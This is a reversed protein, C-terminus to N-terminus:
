WQRQRGAYRAARPAVGGCAFLDLRALALLLPRPFSAALALPGSTVRLIRSRGVVSCAATSRWNQPACRQVYLWHTVLCLFCFFVSDLLARRANCMLLSTAGGHVASMGYSMRSSPMRSKLFARALQSCVVFFDSM